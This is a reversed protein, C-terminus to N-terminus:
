WPLSPNRPNPQWLQIGGYAAPRRERTENAGNYVMRPIKDIPKEINNELIPFKNKVQLESLM